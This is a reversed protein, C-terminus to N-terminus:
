RESGPPSSRGVWLWREGSWPSGARGAQKQPPTWGTYASDVTKDIFCHAWLPELLDIRLDGNLDYEALPYPDPQNECIVHRYATVDLDDLGGDAVLDGFVTNTAKVHWIGTTRLRYTYAGSITVNTIDLRVLRDAGVWRHSYLNISFGQGEFTTWGSALTRAEDIPGWTETFLPATFEGLPVWTDGQYAELVYVYDIRQYFRAYQGDMPTPCIWHVEIGTQLTFEFPWAYYTDPVDARALGAFALVILLVLLMRDM